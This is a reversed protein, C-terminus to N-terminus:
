IKFCFSYIRRYLSFVELPSCLVLYNSYYSLKVLGPESNPHSGPIGVHIARLCMWVHKAATNTLAFPRHTFDRHQCTTPGTSERAFRPAMANKRRNISWLRKNKVKKSSVVWTSCLWLECRWVCRQCVTHELGYMSSAWVYDWLSRQVGLFVHSFVYPYKLRELIYISMSIIQPSALTIASFYIKQM